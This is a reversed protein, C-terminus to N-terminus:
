WMGAVPSQWPRASIDDEDAQAQCIQVGTATTEAVDAETRIKRKLGRKARGATSEEAPPM